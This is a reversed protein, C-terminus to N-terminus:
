LAARALLHGHHGAAEGEGGAAEGRGRHHGGQHHLVWGAQVGNHLTIQLYMNFSSFLNTIVSFAGVIGVIPGEGPQFRRRGSECM